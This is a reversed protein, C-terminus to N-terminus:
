LINERNQTMFQRTAISEELQQYRSSLAVGDPRSSMNVNSKILLNYLFIPVRGVSFSADKCIKDSKVDGRGFGASFALGRGVDIQM